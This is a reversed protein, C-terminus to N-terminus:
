ERDTDEFSIDRHSGTTRPRSDLKIGSRFLPSKRLFEGVSMKKQKKKNHLMQDFQAASVMYAAAEGNRTVLQPEKQCEDLLKSFKAKAEQAQWTHM